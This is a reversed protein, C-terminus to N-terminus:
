LGGAFRHRGGGGGRFASKSARPARARRTGAAFLVESRRAAQMDEAAGAGRSCVQGGSNRRRGQVGAHQSPGGEGPQSTTCARPCRCSSTPCSTVRSVGQTRTGRRGCYRISLSKSLIAASERADREVRGEAAARHACQGAAAPPGRSGVQRQPAGARRAPRTARTCVAAARTGGRGESTSGGAARGARAPRM